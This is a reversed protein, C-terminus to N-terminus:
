PMTGRSVGSAIRGDLAPALSLSPRISAGPRPYTTNGLEQGYEHDVSARQELTVDRTPEADPFM